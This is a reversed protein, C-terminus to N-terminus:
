DRLAELDKSKKCGLEKLVYSSLQSVLRRGACGAETPYDAELMTAKERDITDIMVLKTQLLPLRKWKRMPTM